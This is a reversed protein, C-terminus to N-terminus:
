CVITKAIYWVFGLMAPGARRLSPYVATSGFWPIGLRAWSPLPRSPRPPWLLPLTSPPLLTPRPPVPPLALPPTLPPVPPLTWPPVPVLPPLLLLLLLLLLLPAALPPM